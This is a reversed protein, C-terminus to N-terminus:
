LVVMSHLYLSLFSLQCVPWLKSSACNATIDSRASSARANTTPPNSDFSEFLNISFYLNRIIEQRVRGKLELRVRDQVTLSPLAMFSLSMDTEREGFAVFQVDTGFAAEANNSGPDGSYQERNYLGGAFLAWQMRARRVLHRGATIGATGRFDLSLEDNRRLSGLASAFWRSGFPRLYDFDLVHRNRTAAGDQIRFLSSVAIRIERAGDKYTVDGNLTYDLQNSAQTYTLGFDIGGELRNWVRQGVPTLYAVEPYAIEVVGADTAVGLKGASAPELTGLAGGGEADDVQYRTESEIHDITDWKIRVVGMSETDVRLRGRELAEIEGTVRDGNTLVIIDTKQAIAPRAGVLLFTATLGLCVLIRPVLPKPTGLEPLPTNEEGPHRRM